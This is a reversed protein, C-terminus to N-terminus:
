FFSTVRVGSASMTPRVLGYICFQDLKRADQCLSQAFHKTVGSMAGTTRSCHDLDGAGVCFDLSNHFFILGKIWFPKEKAYIVAM